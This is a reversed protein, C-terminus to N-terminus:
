LIEGPGITLVISKWVPTILEEFFLM